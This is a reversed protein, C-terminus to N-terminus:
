LGLVHLSSTELVHWRTDFSGVRPVLQFRIFIRAHFQVSLFVIPRNGAKFSFKMQPFFVFPFLFQPLKSFLSFNPADTSFHSFCPTYYVFINAEFRGYAGEIQRLVAAPNIKKKKKQGWTGDFGLISTVQPFILFRHQPRQFRSVHCWGKKLDQKLVGVIAM